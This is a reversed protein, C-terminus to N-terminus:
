PGGGHHARAQARVVLLAELCHAGQVDNEDLFVPAVLLYPSAATPVTSNLQDGAGQKSDTHPRPSLAM